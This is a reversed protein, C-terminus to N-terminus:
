PAPNGGTLTNRLCSGLMYANGFPPDEDPLERFSSDIIVSAWQHAGEPTDIQLCARPNSRLFELKKGPMTFAYLSNGSYAYYIPVVYPINDRACAM